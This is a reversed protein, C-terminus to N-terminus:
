ESGPSFSIGPNQLWHRYALSTFLRADWEVKVGGLASDEVVIEFSSKVKHTGALPDALAGALSEIGVNGIEFEFGAARLQGDPGTLQPPLRFSKPMAAATRFHSLMM